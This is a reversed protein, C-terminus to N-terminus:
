AAQDQQDRRGGGPLSQAENCLLRRLQAYNRAMSARGERQAGFEARQLVHHLHTLLYPSLVASVLVDDSPAPTPMAPLAPAGSRAVLWPWAVLMTSSLIWSLADVSTLISALRQGEREAAWRGNHGGTLGGAAAAGLRGADLHHERFLQQFLQGGGGFGVAARHAIQGPHQDLLPQLM